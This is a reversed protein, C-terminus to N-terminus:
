EGRTGKLFVRGAFVQFAIREYSSPSYHEPKNFAYNKWNLKHKPYYQIFIEKKFHKYLFM